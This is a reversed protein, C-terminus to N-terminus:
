MRAVIAPLIERALTVADYVVSKLRPSPRLEEGRLRIVAILSAAITLVATERPKEM